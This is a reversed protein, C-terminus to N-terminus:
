SNCNIYDNYNIKLRYKNMYLIKYILSIKLFYYYILIIWRIKLKRPARTRFILESITRSQLKYCIYTCFYTIYKIFSIIFYNVHTYCTYLM